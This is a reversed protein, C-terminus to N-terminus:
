RDQQTNQLLTYYTGLHSGTQRDTQRDTQSVSQIFLCAGCESIRHISQSSQRVRSQVGFLHTGGGGGGGGEGVQQTTPGDARGAIM